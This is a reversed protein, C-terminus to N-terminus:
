DFIGSFKTANRQLCEPSKHRKLHSERRFVQTATASWHGEFSAFTVLKDTQVSRWWVWPSVKSLQIFLHLFIYCKYINIFKHSESLSVRKNKKPILSKRQWQPPTVSSVTPGIQWSSWDCFMLNSESLFSFQQIAETDSLSELTIASTVSFMEHFQFQILCWGWYCLWLICALVVIPLFYMGHKTCHPKSRIKM